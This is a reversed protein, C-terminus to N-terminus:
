PTGRRCRIVRQVNTEKAIRVDHVITYILYGVGATTSLGIFLLAIGTMIPLVAVGLILLLLVTITIKVDKFNM